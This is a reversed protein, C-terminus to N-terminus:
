IRSNRSFNRPEPFKTNINDIDESIEKIREIINNKAELNEQRRKEDAELFALRKEKFENHLNKFEAELEDPRSAFAEPSNGAEIFENLQELNEKSKITYFAQKIAGVERHAEMNNDALIKRLADILQQKDMSHIEKMRAAELDVETAPKAVDQTDAVNEIDLAPSTEVVCIEEANQASASAANCSSDAAGDLPAGPNMADNNSAMKELENM